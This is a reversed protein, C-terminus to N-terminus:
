ETKGVFANQLIQNVCADTASEADTPTPTNFTNSDSVTVFMRPHEDDSMYLTLGYVRSVFTSLKDGDDLVFGNKSALGGLTALLMDKGNSQVVSRMWDFWTKGSPPAKFTKRQTRQTDRTDRTNTRRTDQATTRRADQTNTRQADQATTRSPYKNFSDTPLTNLLDEILKLEARKEDRLKELQSRSM